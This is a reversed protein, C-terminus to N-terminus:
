YGIIISTGHFWVLGIIIFQITQFLITKVHLKTYVFFQVKVLNLQKFSKDFHSLEAKFSGSLTSVGYFLIALWVISSDKQVPARNERIKLEGAHPLIVERM